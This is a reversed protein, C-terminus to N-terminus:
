REIKHQTENLLKNITENLIVFINLGQSNANIRRTDSLISGLIEYKTHGKGKKHTKLELKIEQYDQYNRIKKAYNGVIKKVIIMEQEELNFNVLVINGGLEREVM